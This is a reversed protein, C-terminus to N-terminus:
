PSLDANKLHDSPAHGIFGNSALLLADDRLLLHNHARDADTLDVLAM